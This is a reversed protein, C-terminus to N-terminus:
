FLYKLDKCDESESDNNYKGDTRGMGNPGIEYSSFDPNELLTNLTSVGQVGRITNIPVIFEDRLQNTRENYHALRNGFDNKHMKGVHIALGKLTDCVKDCYHCKINNM